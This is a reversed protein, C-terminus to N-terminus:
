GKVAVAEVEHARAGVVEHVGVVEVDTHLVDLAAVFLVSRAGLGHGDVDVAHVDPKVVVVLHEDVPPLDGGQRILRRTDLDVHHGGEEHLYTKSRTEYM